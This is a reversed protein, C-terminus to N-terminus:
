GDTSARYRDILVTGARVLVYLGTTALALQTVAAWVLERRSAFEYVFRLPELRLERILVAVIGLVALLLLAIGIWFLFIGAVLLSERVVWRLRARFPRPFSDRPM